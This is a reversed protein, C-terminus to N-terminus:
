LYGNPLAPAAKGPFKKHYFRCADDSCLFKVTVGKAQLAPWWDLWKCDAAQWISPKHPHAYAVAVFKRDSVDFCPELNSDPFESFRDPSNETLSVREV